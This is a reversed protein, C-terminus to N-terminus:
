RATGPFRATGPTRYTGPYRSTGPARATGPSRATAAARDTSRAAPPIPAAIRKLTVVTVGPVVVGNVDIRTPRAAFATPKERGGDTAYAVVLTDAGELKYIWNQRGPVAVAAGTPEDADLTLVKPTQTEDPTFTFAVSEPNAVVTLTEGQFRFRDAGARDHRGGAPEGDDVSEVAWTGQLKARDGTLKPASPRAPEVRAGCGVLTLLAACAAPAASLKHTRM